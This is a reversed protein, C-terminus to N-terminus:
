IWIFLKLFGFVKLLFNFKLEVVIWFYEIDIFVLVKFLNSLLSVFFICIGFCFFFIRLVIDIIFFFVLILLWGIYYKFRFKFTFLFLYVVFDFLKLNFYIFWRVFGLFLFFIVFSDKVVFIFSFSVVVYKSVIVCKIVFENFFFVVCFVLKIIIIFSNNSWLWYRDKSFFISLIVSLVSYIVSLFVVFFM